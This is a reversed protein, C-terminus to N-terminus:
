QPACSSDIFCGDDNDEFLEKGIRKAKKLKAKKLEKAHQKRKCEALSPGTGSSRIGVQYTKLETDISVSDRVDVHCVDLLSLNPSERHAWGAHIVEAQNM